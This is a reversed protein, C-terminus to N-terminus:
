VTIKILVVPGYGPDTCNAWMMVAENRLMGGLRIQAQTYGRAKLTESWFVRIGM